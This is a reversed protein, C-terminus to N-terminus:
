AKGKAGGVLGIDKISKGIANSDPPIVVEAIGASSASLVEAFVDMDSKVRLAYEDAFNMVSERRGMIALESGVWFETDGRPAVTIENSNRM